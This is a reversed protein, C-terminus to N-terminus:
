RIDLTKGIVIVKKKLYKIFYLEKSKNHSNMNQHDISAERWTGIPNKASRYAHKACLMRRDVPPGKLIM